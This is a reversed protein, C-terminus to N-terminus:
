KKINDSKRSLDYRGLWLWARIKCVELLFKLYVGPKIRTVASNRWNVPTEAIKYGLRKALALIEVDFSWRDLKSRSFVDEAARSTFAKFGCQTDWIGPLLLIQIFLNGLKGPLQRYWPEALLMKSGRATRSGIVVDVGQEFLPLMPALDKIETSNDDDMFIRISGEALLMGQRVAAGKGHNEANDVLRINKVTEAMRRVIESTNDMSGDKVVLIEYAFGAGSLYHDIDVLTAPLVEAGNYTPIVVSLYPRAPM